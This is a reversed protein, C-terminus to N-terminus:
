FTRTNPASVVFDTYYAGIKITWLRKPEDRVEGSAGLMELM